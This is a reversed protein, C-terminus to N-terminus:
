PSRRSKSDDARLAEFLPKGLKVCRTEVVKDNVEFWVRLDKGFSTNREILTAKADGQSRDFMDGISPADNGVRLM